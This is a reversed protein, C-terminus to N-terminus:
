RAVILAQGLECAFGNLVVFFFAGAELRAWRYM